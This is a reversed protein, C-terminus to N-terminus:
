GQTKGFESALAQLTALNGQVAPLETQVQTRLAGDKTNADEAKFAKVARDHMALEAAVYERDFAAGSMGRLKDLEAKLQPSPESPPQVGEARLAGQLGPSLAAAQATIRSTLDVIRPDAAKTKALEGAQTDLQVLQYAADIYDADIQGMTGSSKIQAEMTTCSTAALPIVFWLSSKTMRM